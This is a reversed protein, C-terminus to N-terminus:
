RKRSFTNRITGAENGSIEPAESRAREWLNEQFKEAHHEKLQGRVYADYEPRIGRIIDKIQKINERNEKVLTYLEKYTQAQMEKLHRVQEEKQRLIEPNSVPYERIAKQRDKMEGLKHKM